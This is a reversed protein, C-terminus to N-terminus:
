ALTLITGAHYSQTLTVIKNTVDVSYDVNKLIQGNDALDGSVYMSARDASNSFTVSTQGDTLTVSETFVVPVTGALAKDLMVLNGGTDFSLVTNAIPDINVSGTSTSTRNIGFKRDLDSRLQQSIMIETDQERNLTEALLDGSNQYDVLRELDAVRDITVIDGLAAGTVLTVLGGDQTDEGSVTYDTSIVLLDSADDAAQGSPTLYVTLDGTSFFPMPFDFVTQGATATYQRRPEVDNVVITTAPM